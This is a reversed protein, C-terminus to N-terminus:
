PAIRLDRVPSARARGRSTLADVYWFYRGGPALPAGATAQVVTDTLTASWVTDGLQDTVVLRYSADSGVSHWVFLLDRVPVLQAPGPAVLVVASRRVDVADPGRLVPGSAARDSAPWVLLLTLAAATALGAGGLWPLWRTTRPANAVVLAAEAVEDRCAACAVLHVELAQREAVGLRRDLFAAIATEDLHYSNGDAHTM